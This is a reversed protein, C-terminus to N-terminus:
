KGWALRKATVDLNADKTIIVPSKGGLELTVPTLNEAAARMVIKGVLPNGTYFIYDWRQKLIETTEEVAGEIVKVHDNDLYKPILEAWLGSVAPCLESPKVLVNNGAAIAGALPEGVLSIPYNWPSIILVTGYPERVTYANGPQNAIVANGVPKPKMYEKLNSMLDDAEGTTLLVESVQLMRHSRLDSILAKEWREQNDVMMKKLQRLQQMRWEYSKTKGELFKKRLTSTTEAIWKLNKTNSM